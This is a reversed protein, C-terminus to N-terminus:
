NRWHPRKKRIMCDMVRAFSVQILHDIHLDTGIFGDIM